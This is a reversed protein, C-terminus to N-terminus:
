SSTTQKLIKNTEDKLQTYLEKRKITAQQEGCFTLCYVQLEKKADRKPRQARGILQMLLEKSNVHAVILVDAMEINLGNGTHRGNLILIPLTGAAFRAILSPVVKFNGKLEKHALNQEKLVMSLKKAAQISSTSILVWEGKHHELIKCIVDMKALTDPQIYTCKKPTFHAIRTELQHKAIAERRDVTASPQQQLAVSSLAQAQRRTRKRGTTQIEIQEREQQKEEKEDEEMDLDPQDVDKTEEEEGKGEQKTEDLISALVRSTNKRTSRHITLRLALLQQKMRQLAAFGKLDSEQLVCTGLIGHCCKVCRVVHSCCDLCYPLLCCSTNVAEGPVLKTTCRLCIEENFIAQFLLLQRCGLVFASLHGNQALNLAQMELVGMVRPTKWADYEAVEEEYSIFRPPQPPAESKTEERKLEEELRQTQRALKDAAYHQYIVYEEYRVQQLMHRPLSGIAWRRADDYCEESLLQALHSNPFCQNIIQTTVKAKCQVLYKIFPLYNSSREDIEKVDTKITLKELQSLNLLRFKNALAGRNKITNLATYTTTIAWSFISDVAECAPLDIQHAEDYIVRQWTLKHKRCYKAVDKFKRSNCLVLKHQNLTQVDYLDLVSTIFMCSLKPKPKEKTETEQRAGNNTRRKKKKPPPLPQLTRKEEDEEQENGAPEASKIKRSLSKRKQTSVIEYREAITKKWQEFLPFPVVILNSQLMTTWEKPLADDYDPIPTALTLYPEYRPQLSCFPHAYEEHPLVMSRQKGAFLPWDIQLYDNILQIVCTALNTSAFLPQFYSPLVSPHEAILAITTFTKGSGIDDAFIGVNTKPERDPHDFLAKEYELM